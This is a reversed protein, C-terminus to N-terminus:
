QKRKGVTLEIKMINEGTVQNTLPTHGFDIVTVDGRELDKLMSKLYKMAGKTTRSKRFYKRFLPM